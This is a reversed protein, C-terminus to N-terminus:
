RFLHPQPLNGNSFAILLATSCQPSTLVLQAFTETLLLLHFHFKVFSINFFFHLLFYWDFVFLLSKGGRWFVTCFIEMYFWNGSVSLFGCGCFFFICKLKFFFDLCWINFNGTDYFNDIPAIPPINLVKLTTNSIHPLDLWWFVSGWFLERCELYCYLFAYFYM